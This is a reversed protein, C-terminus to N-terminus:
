YTATAWKSIMLALRLHRQAPRMGTRHAIGGRSPITVARAINDGLHVWECQEGNTSCQENHGARYEHNSPDNKLVAFLM